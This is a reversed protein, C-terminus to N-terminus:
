TYRLLMKFSLWLWSVHVFAPLYCNATAAILDIKLPEMMIHGKWVTQALFDIIKTQEKLSAM